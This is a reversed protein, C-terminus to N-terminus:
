SAPTGHPSPQAPLPQAWCPLLLQGTGAMNHQHWDEPHLASPLVPKPPACAIGTPLRPLTDQYPSSIGRAPHTVRGWGWALTSPPPHPFSSPPHLSHGGRVCGRCQCLGAPSAPVLRRRSIVRGPEYCVGLENCLCILLFGHPPSDGRSPCPAQPCSACPQPRQWRTAPCWDEPTPLRRCGGLPVRPHPHAAGPGPLFRCCGPSRGATVLIHGQGLFAGCLPPSPSSTQGGTLPQNSVLHGVLVNDASDATKPTAAPKM